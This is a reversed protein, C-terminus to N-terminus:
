GAGAGVGGVIDPRIPVGDGRESNSGARSPGIILHFGVATFGVYMFAEGVSRILDDHGASYLRRM